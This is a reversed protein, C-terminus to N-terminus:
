KYPELSKVEFIYARRNRFEIRNLPYKYGFLQNEIEIINHDTHEKLYSIFKKAVTNYGTIPLYLIAINMRDDYLKNKKKTV